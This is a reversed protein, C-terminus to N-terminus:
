KFHESCSSALQVTCTVRMHVQDTVTVYNRTITNCQLVTYTRKTGWSVRKLDKESTKLPRQRGYYVIVTAPEMLIIDEVMLWGMKLICVKEDTSKVPTTM